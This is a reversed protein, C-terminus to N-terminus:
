VTRERRTARAWPSPHSEGDRAATRETPQSGYQTRCPQQAEHWWARALQRKIRAPASPAAM